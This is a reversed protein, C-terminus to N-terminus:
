LSQILERMVKMAQLFQYYGRNQEEEGPGSHTFSGSYQLLFTHINKEMDKPKRSPKVSPDYPITISITSPKFVNDYFVRYEPFKKAFIQAFYLCVGINFTLKTNSNKVQVINKDLRGIDPDSIYNIRSIWDLMTMYDSYFVLDGHMRLYLRALKENPADKMDKLSIPRLLYDKTDKKIRMMVGNPSRVNMFNSKTVKSGKTVDRLWEITKEKEKKHQDAYSLLEQIDRIHQLIYDVTEDIMKESTIGCLHINDSSLKVNVNKEICSIDLGVSNKFFLTKSTRIMGRVSGCFNTSIVTGPKKCHPLMKSNKIKEDSLKAVPLLSFLVRVDILSNLKTDTVMMSVNPGSVIIDEFNAREM